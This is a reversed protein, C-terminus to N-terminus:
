FSDMKTNKGRKRKDSAVILAEDDDLIGKQIYFSDLMQKGTGMTKSLIDMARPNTQMAFIRDEAFYHRFSYASRRKGDADYLLGAEDLVKPLTKFFGKNRTGDKNCFLWDDNDERGTLNKLDEYFNATAPLSTVRRTGTKTHASVTIKLVASQTEPTKQMEIDKHKLLLVEGTRMGTTSIWAIYLM